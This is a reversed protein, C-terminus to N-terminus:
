GFKLLSNFMTLATGNQLARTRGDRFNNKKREPCVRKCLPFAFTVLDDCPKRWQLMTWYGRANELEAFMRTKADVTWLSPSVTLTWSEATTQVASTVCYLKRTQTNSDPGPVFPDKTTLQTAKRVAGEPTSSPVADKLVNVLPVLHWLISKTCTYKKLQYNKLNVANLEALSQKRSTHPRLRQPIVYTASM